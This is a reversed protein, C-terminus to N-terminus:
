DLIKILGELSTKVGARTWWAPKKKVTWTEMAKMTISYGHEMLEISKRFDWMPVWPESTLLIHKVEVGNAEALKKELELQRVEVTRNLKWLFPRIGPTVSDDEEEPDLLDLAIIETAGQQLAAEIPLNSVASGDMLYQEDKEVPVMWPPLAMSALISDLVFEDPDVGFVVPKGSNLDAAVPYLFASDLDSFRLDPTIGNEIAFDRIKNVPHGNPKHFFLQMTQWWMNAPMLDNAVTKQWIEELKTIGDLTYGNVALFAGNAAGISTGTVLDPQYGAEVLARLAGVQLAGRSGGGGLVFALQKKKENKMM